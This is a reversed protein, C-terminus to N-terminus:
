SRNITQAEGLTGIIITPEGDQMRMRPAPVSGPAAAAGTLLTRRDLEFPTEKSKRTM